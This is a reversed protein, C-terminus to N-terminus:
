LPIAEDFIKIDIKILSYIDRYYLVDCISVLDDYNPRARGEEWAGVKKVNAGIADAFAQQTFGRAKRLKTINKVLRHM